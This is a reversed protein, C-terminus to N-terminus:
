PIKEIMDCIMRKLKTNNFYVILVGHESKYRYTGKGRVQSVITKYFQKSSVGLERRWYSLSQKKSIDDFVQLSFRLDDKNVSCMEELFEMFKRILRPDSNTLRVGGSGRKGGEGWYLGLGMGFLIGQTLNKPQKVLFPDGSPNNLRYVAESITRKKIGHKALWYNIRNESCKLLDSIQCVSKSEIVYFKFLTDKPIQGSKPLSYGKM